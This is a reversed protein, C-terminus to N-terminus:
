RDGSEIRPAGIWPYRAARRYALADARADDAMKAIRRRTERDLPEPRIKLFSRHAQVITENEIAIKLYERSRQVLVWGTSGLAALAVVTMLLWIRIRPLRM